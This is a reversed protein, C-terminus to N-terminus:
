REVKHGHAFRWIPPSCLDAEVLTRDIIPQLIFWGHLTREGSIEEFPWSILLSPDLRLTLDLKRGFGIVIADEGLIPIFLDL